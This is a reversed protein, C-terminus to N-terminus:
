QRFYPCNIPLANQYFAGLFKEDIMFLSPFVDPALFQTMTLSQSYVNGYPYIYSFMTAGTEVVWQAKVAEL